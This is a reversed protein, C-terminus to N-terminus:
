GEGKVSMVDAIINIVGQSINNEKIIRQVNDVFSVEDIDDVTVASVFDDLMDQVEKEKEIHDRSLVKEASAHPIEHWEYERTAVDFVVFSPVHSFNYETAERRIMPGTNILLREGLKKEFKRHIDGCLVLDFDPHKGLFESPGQYEQEPFIEEESIDAHIVLVTLGVKKSVVPIEQGFSCGYIHCVKPAGRDTYVMEKPVESLVSVLNAGELVGMITNERTEKSYMYSDHQGWVVEIDVKSKYDKLLSFLRPLLFWSRPHHCLDGAQLLIVEEEGTLSNCYDLVFKLKKFGTDGTNDLRGEPQELWLHVDSLLALKM